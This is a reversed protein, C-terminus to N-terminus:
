GDPIEEVGPSVVRWRGASRALTWRVLARGANPVNPLQLEVLVDGDELVRETAFGVERM